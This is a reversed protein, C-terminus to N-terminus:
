VGRGGSWRQFSWFSPSFSWKQQCLLCVPDCVLLSLQVVSWVCCQISTWCFQWFKQDDTRYSSFPSCTTENAMSCHMKLAVRQIRCGIFLRNVTCDIVMHARANPRWKWICHGKNNLSLVCWFYPGLPGLVVVNDSRHGGLDFFQSSNRYIPTIPAVKDGADSLFPPLSSFLQFEAAAARIEPDDLSWNSWLSLLPSLSPLPSSIWDRIEFSLSFAQFSLGLKFM